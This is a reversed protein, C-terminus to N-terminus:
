WTKRLSHCVHGGNVEYYDQHYGEADYFTQAPVVETVANKKLSSTKDFLSKVKEAAVRQEDSYYFVASRYQTGVDFGQRNLTTPDHLQFFVKVLEEYSTKNEDFLVQVVEAHGTRGTSVQRYGPKDLSGGMYGVETDIVGKTEKMISEVGWFCGAAFTAIKYNPHAKQQAAFPPFVTSLNLTVNESTEAKAFLTEYQGYGEEALKEKPIFKLSASNICYRMGGEDSPGDNFVHGLHSNADSSRVETRVMGHSTDMKEKIKKGEIPKTFSPWGTGSDFKDTSSFLPEGSVVDVYIGEKHNDWYENRFAPETGNEQTVKHQMPTLYELGYKSKTEVKGGEGSVPATEAAQSRGCELSFLVAAVSILTVVYDKM